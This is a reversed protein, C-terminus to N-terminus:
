RESTNNIGSPEVMFGTGAHTNIARLAEMPTMEAVPSDLHLEISTAATELFNPAVADLDGDVVTSPCGIWQQVAAVAGLTENRSPSSTQLFGAIKAQAERLTRRYAEISDVGTYEPTLSIEQKIRPAGALERSVTTSYCLNKARILSPYLAEFDLVAVPTTYYGRFARLVLAGEYKQKAKQKLPPVICNREHANHLLQNMVGIQQGKVVLTGIDTCKIRAMALLTPVIDLRQLLLIPLVCDQICYEAIALRAAPTGRRHLAFMEEYPLDVKSQGLINESLYNLSYRDMKMTSKIWNYTDLNCTLGNDPLHMTNDGLASSNLEQKKTLTEDGIVPSQFNYQTASVRAARDALYGYDFGLVNFGTTIDPHLAQMFAGFAELLAKETEFWMLHKFKGPLTNGLSFMIDTMKGQSQVTVGICIVADGPRSADPFLAQGTHDQVTSACEIDFSAVTLASTTDLNQCAFTAAGTTMDVYVEVNCCTLRLPVAGAEGCAVAAGSITLWECYRAGIEELFQGEYTGAGEACIPYEDAGTAGRAPLERYELARRPRSVSKAAFWTRLCPFRVKLLVRQTRGPAEQESTAEVPHFSDIEARTVVSTRSMFAEESTFGSNLKLFARCLAQTMEETLVRVVTSPEQADCVDYFLYPEFGTVFAAVSAGDATIGRLLVGNTGAASYKYYSRCEKRYAAANTVYTSPFGNPGADLSYRLTPSVPLPARQFKKVVPTWWQTQCFLLQFTVDKANYFGDCAVQSGVFAENKDGGRLETGMSYAMHQSAAPNAM